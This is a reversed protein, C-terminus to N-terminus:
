VAKGRSPARSGNTSRSLNTTKPKTIHRATATLFAPPPPTSFPLLPPHNGETEFFFLVGGGQDVNTEVHFARLM